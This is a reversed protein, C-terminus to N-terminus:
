QSLICLSVPSFTSFEDEMVPSQYLALDLVIQELRGGLVGSEDKDEPPVMVAQTSATGTADRQGVQGHLLQAMVGACVDARPVFQLGVFTGEYDAPGLFLYHRSLLFRERGSILHM